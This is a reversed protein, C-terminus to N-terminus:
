CVRSALLGLLGFIKKQNNLCTEISLYLCFLCACMRFGLYKGKRCGFGMQGTVSVATWTLNEEHM